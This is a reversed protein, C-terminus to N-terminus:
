AERHRQIQVTECSRDMRTEPHSLTLGKQATRAMQKTRTAPSETGRLAAKYIYKKMRWREKRDKFAM